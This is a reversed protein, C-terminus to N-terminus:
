LEGVLLRLIVGSGSLVRKSRRSGYPFIRDNQSTVRPQLSTVTVQLRSQTLHRNSQSAIESKPPLHGRFDFNELIDKLIWRRSVTKDGFKTFIPRQSTASLDDPNGCLFCYLIPKWGVIFSQIFSRGYTSHPRRQPFISALTVTVSTRGGFAIAKLVRCVLIYLPWSPDLEHHCSLANRTTPSNTTTESIHLCM